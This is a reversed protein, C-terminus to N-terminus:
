GIIYAQQMMIGFNLPAKFGQLVRLLWLEHGWQRRCWQHIHFLGNSELVVADNGVVAEMNAGELVVANNNGVAMVDTWDVVVLLKFDVDVNVTNDRGLNTM